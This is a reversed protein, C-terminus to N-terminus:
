SVVFPLLSGRFMTQKLEELKPCGCILVNKIESITNEGGISVIDPCSWIMLNELSTLNTSWLEGPISTIRRCTRIRLTVLSALNQLCSPFWASIDKCNRLSLIQLSTPLVLGRGWSVSGLDSIELEKLFSFNWFREGPLSVLSYCRTVHIREIAPLYEEALLDDIISLEFCNDITLSSLSPFARVGGTSRMVQGSQGIISTLSQCGSIHLEELAPLNWKQLQISTTYVCSLFFYTLSCCDVNDVLNARTPNMGNWNWDNGKILVLRKLSPVVLSKINLNLCGQVELEGLCCLDRFIEAPVSVLNTCYKITMKTLSSIYATHIVHELSLIYESVITLDTIRPINFSGSGYIMKSPNSLEDRSIQLYRLHKSNGISTPLEDTSAIVIVRLHLFGSCWAAILSPPTRKDALPKDCILTRLKTFCRLGLLNSYDIDTSSFISLHRVNLPISKFDSQGKIIFCDFQPVKQAMDHLLDHIVYESQVEHFFSRDLLDNFYECGIDKAPIDGQPEVFGEAVWIEALHGKQFKYDKPYVACLSFCRKLHFPLYMYSLQLAPLIETEEQKLTWLESELITNWHEARLNMRLIRGLTKAALPSGKLKPVISRGIRELEPDNISSSEREFVCLKFFDWFVDPKLGELTVPDRTGVRDAVKQSRTTVLMMSGDLVKKIPACFRKWRQGNEKLVDDWLDDLVILFKNSSVIHSLINQLSNLNDTTAQIGTSEIAEKTLRKVDFDDSVCLWIIIEFSKEVQAVSCVHQALTTKGVGGIGVIPLVTLDTKPESSVQNNTSTSTSGDVASNEKKRKPLIEIIKKLEMERGVFNEENPFSSTEPRVSKDFRTSVEHLGMNLLRTSINDLRDRIGNMSKIFSGEIVVNFFDMPFSQSGNGEVKVNLMYWKFEDLLDDADYVADKLKPLLEAVRRIHSRWEARDILDYMSPLTDMLYQLGRELCILEQHLRQRETGCWQSSITSRAWQFLNDCLKSGSTVGITDMIGMTVPTRLNGEARDVLYLSHAYHIAHDSLILTLPIPVIVPHSTIMNEVFQKKNFIM